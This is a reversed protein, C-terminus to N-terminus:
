DGPCARQSRISQPSFHARRCAPRSISCHLRICDFATLHLRIDALTEAGKGLDAFDHGVALARSQFDRFSPAAGVAQRTGCKTLADCSACGARHAAFIASGAVFAGTSPRAKGTRHGRTLQALFSLESLLLTGAIARVAHRSLVCGCTPACAAGLAGQRALGPPSSALSPRAERPCARPRAVEGPAVSSM